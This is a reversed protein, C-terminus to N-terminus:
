KKTILKLVREKSNKVSKVGTRSSGKVSKVVTCSSCTIPQVPTSIEAYIAQILIQNVTDNRNFTISRYTPHRMALWFVEALSRDIDYGSEQQAYDSPYQYDQNPNLEGGIPPSLVQNLDDMDLTFFDESDLRLAEEDTLPLDM